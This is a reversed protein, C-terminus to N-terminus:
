RTQTSPHRPVHRPQPRMHGTGTLRPTAIVGPILEGTIRSPKQGMHLRPHLGHAGVGLGHLAVRIVERRGRGNELLGILRLVKRM